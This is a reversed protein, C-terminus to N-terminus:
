NSTKKEHRWFKKYLQPASQFITNLCKESKRTRRETNVLFILLQKLVDFGLKKEKDNNDM